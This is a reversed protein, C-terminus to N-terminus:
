KKIFGARQDYLCPHPNSVIDLLNGDVDLFALRLPRFEQTGIYIFDSLFDAPFSEYSPAQKEPITILANMLAAATELRRTRDLTLPVDWFPSYLAETLVKGGNNKSLILLQVSPQENIRTSVQDDDAPTLVNSSAVLAKRELEDIKEKMRGKLFCLNGKEERECYVAELLPRIDNPLSLSRRPRLEEYTRCIQYAEYPLFTGCEIHEGASLQPEELIVARRSATSPRFPDLQRHRWLRGIRQLIMDAPAIRTILLDADIDVSQELVQTGVLIRGIKCRQSAGNKGLLDVWKNENRTRVSRPFRSHILGIEIDGACCSLHAFIEQAKAVTNELWLVQEGDAAKDLALALSETEECFSLAVNRPSSGSFPIKVEQPHDPFSCSILPYPQCENREEQSPPPLLAFERRAEDTLTASLVLVTCRSDRLRRILQKLLFGTYHDYSHCEDIIVVKGALAFARVANHKANLIALLAQDITGAGFPALLARKKTQFWSDRGHEDEQEDNGEMQLHWELHANGHLLLANCDAADNLIKKLFQNLRSHIKESTLQTPLAFYIGSAAHSELMKYAIYLAAETKGSGMESEIINIEGPIIKRCCAQQLSNPSFGFIDEFSLNRRIDPTRFGASSIFAPVDINESPAGWPIEIASSIWDSVIVAGLIEQSLEPLLDPTKEALGLAGFTRRLIESRLASWQPGGCYSNKDNFIEPNGMNHAIGHHNAALAAFNEGFRERLIWGSYEAHDVNSYQFEEIIKQGLAGYIKQQFGPTVKGIDHVAALYEAAESFVAAKPTDRFCEKLARLVLTCLQLHTVVDCGKAGNLTKALCDEPTLIQSVPGSSKRVPIKM